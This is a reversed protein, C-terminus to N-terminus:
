FTQLIWDWFGKLFSSVKHQVGKNAIEVDTEKKRELACKLTGVVGAFEPNGEWENLGPINMPKGLRTPLKLVRSALYKIDKLKACGGTLIIGAMYIGSDGLKKVERNIAEFIDMLRAEVIEALMKRQVNVSESESFSIAEMIEGEEEATLLEPCASGKSIKLGEAESLPIKFTMAIDFTVMDGGIPLTKCHILHSGKYAAIKTTGAGMDVLLMGLEKEEEKIISEAAAVTSHIYGEKELELETMELVNKVNKLYTDHGTILYADLELKSGEMNLPNSVTNHGDIYYSLPLIHLIRRDGINKEKGAAKIVNNVDINTIKRNKGTVHVAGRNSRSSIHEGSVGTYVSTVRVGAANEAELVALEVARACEKLDTIVGKKVGHSPSSSKGLIELGKELCHEAIVCSIKSTGVDLAVVINKKPM